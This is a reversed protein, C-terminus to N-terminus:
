NGFTKEFKKINNELYSIQDGVSINQNNNSLDNENFINNMNMNLNIKSYNKELFSNNYSYSNTNNTINMNNNNISKSGPRNNIYFLNEESEDKDNYYIKKQHM